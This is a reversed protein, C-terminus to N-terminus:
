LVSNCDTNPDITFGLSLGCFGPLTAIATANPNYTTILGMLCRCVFRRNETTDAMIHLSSMADCCPSGPLPDPSGYTIFTSCASFLGIITSCEPTSSHVWSAWSILIVVGISIKTCGM